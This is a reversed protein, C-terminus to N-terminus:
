KRAEQIAAIAEKRNNLKMGVVSEAIDFLEKNPMTKLADDTPLSPPLANVVPAPQHQVFPTVNSDVSQHASPDMNLRRLLVEYNANAAAIQNTLTEVRTKLAENDSVLKAPIQNTKAVELFAKAQMRITRGGLVGIGQMQEDSLEALQEVTYVDFQKFTKVLARTMIPWQELPTGELAMTEERKYADYQKSYERKDESTAFRINVSKGDGPVIIEILERDVFVARGANASKAEDQIADKFFRVINRSRSADPMISTDSYSRKYSEKFQM